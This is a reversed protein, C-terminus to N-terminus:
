FFCIFFFFNFGTFNIDSWSIIMQHNFHIFGKGKCSSCKNIRKLYSKYGSDTKKRVMITKPKDILYLHFIFEKGFVRLKFQQGYFGCWWRIEKKFNIDLTNIKMVVGVVIGM